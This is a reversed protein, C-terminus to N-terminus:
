RTVEVDKAGRLKLCMPDPAKRLAGYAIIKQALCGSLCRKLLECTDCPPQFPTGLYQRVARLYPSSEWCERLSWRDVRSLDDTGVLEHSEIQKFADCPYIHFEPGIILRDIAASCDPSQNVLLFNYPSGARVCIKERGLTIMRRLELNEGHTLAMSPQVAGRGQPVFRLVSVRNLRGRSALEIVDPLEAYNMRMPVFHVEVTLGAHQAADIADMTKDFSGDRRTVREHADQTAGFLSFVVSGTGSDKLGTM